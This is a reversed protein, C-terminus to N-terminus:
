LSQETSAVDSVKRPSVNRDHFTCGVSWFHVGDALGHTLGRNVLRNASVFLSFEQAEGIRERKGSFFYNRYVNQSAAHCRVLGADFIVQRIPM